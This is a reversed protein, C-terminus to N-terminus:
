LDIRYVGGFVGIGGQDAWGDDGGRGKEVVRVRWEGRGREGREGTDRREEGRTYLAFCKRCHPEGLWRGDM